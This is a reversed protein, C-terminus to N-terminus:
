IVIVDTEEKSTKNICNRVDYTDEGVASNKKDRRIHNIFGLFNDTSTCIDIITAPTYKGDPIFKHLYHPVSIEYFNEIIAVTDKRTAKTLEIKLNIRGSRMLAEDMKEPYNSIFILKRGWMQNIGSIEELITGLSLADDVVSTKDVKKFQQLSSSTSTNVIKKYKRDLLIENTETDIEDFLYLLEEYKYEPSASSFKKCKFANIFQRNTKITSLKIRVINLKYEDAIAAAIASKGTGPIGHLLVSLQYPLNRQKYWRKGEDSTFFDFRKKIINAQECFISSFNSYPIFEECRFKPINDDFGSLTYIYKQTNDIKSHTYEKSCLKVFDHIERLTMTTSFLTIKTIRSQMKDEGTEHDDTIETKIYLKKGDKDMILVDGTQNIKYIPLYDYQDADSNYRQFGIDQSLAYLGKLKYINVRIYNLIGVTDDTILTKSRGYKTIHVMYSLSVEVYKPNRRFNHIKKIITNLNFTVFNGLQSLIIPLSTALITTYLMMYIYNNVPSGTANNTTNQSNKDDMFMLLAQSQLMGSVGTSIKSSM